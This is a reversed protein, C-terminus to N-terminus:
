RLSVESKWLDSTMSPSIVISNYIEIDNLRYVRKGRDYGRYNYYMGDVEIEWGRVNIRFDVLQLAANLNGSFLLPALDGTFRETVNGKESILEEREDELDNLKQQIKERVRGRSNELDEILLDIREDIKELKGDVVILEKSAKQDIERKLIRGKAESVHENYVFM